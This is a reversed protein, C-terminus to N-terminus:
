NYETSKQLSRSRRPHACNLTKTHNDTRTIALAQSLDMLSIIIEDWLHSFFPAPAHEGRSELRVRLKARYWTMLTKTSQCNERVNAFLSCCIKSYLSVLFTKSPRPHQVVYIIKRMRLTRKVGPHKLCDERAQPWQCGHWMHLLPQETNKGMQLCKQLVTRRDWSWGSGILDSVLCIWCTSPGGWFFLM